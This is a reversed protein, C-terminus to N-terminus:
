SETLVTWDTMGTLANRVIGWLWSPMSDIKRDTFGEDTWEMSCRLSDSESGDGKLQPGMIKVTHVRISGAAGDTTEIIAVISLTDPRFSVHRRRYRNQDPDDLVPGNKFKLVMSRRTRDNTVTIEM